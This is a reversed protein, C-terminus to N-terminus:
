LSEGKKVIFFEASKPSLQVNKVSDPRKGLTIPVRNRGQEISIGRLDALAEFDAPTVENYRSLGVVFTVQVRQPFFRLSDSPPANKVLLPIFISKETYQEVAITAEVRDVSLQIEAPGVQLPVSVTQSKRLDSLVLEQTPWYRVDALASAPGTLAISDPRLEVPGKQQYDSAFSLSDQLAVPVKKTVKKELTFTLNEYNVEDIKINKSYLQQVLDSRLQGRNLELRNTERLDYNLVIHRDTFYDFLLDWGTGEIEATVDDPPATALTKDEPITFVFQVRRETTYNQSLKVLLWFVFAIGFSIILIVRDERLPIRSSKSKIPLRSLKPFM